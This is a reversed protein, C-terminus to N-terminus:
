GSLYDEFTMSAEGSRVPPYLDSQFGAEKRPVKFTIYEVTTATLKVARQIENISVDV